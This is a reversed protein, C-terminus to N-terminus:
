LEEPPEVAPTISRTPTPLQREEVTREWDPPPSAADQRPYDRALAALYPHTSGHSGEAIHEGSQRTPGAVEHMSPLGDQVPSAYRSLLSEPPRITGRRLRPAIVQRRAENIDAVSSRRGSTWASPESPTPAPATLSYWLQSSSQGSLSADGLQEPSTNELSPAESSEPSWPFRGGMEHRRRIRDWPNPSHFRSIIPPASNSSSTTAVSSSTNEHEAPHGSNYRWTGDSSDESRVYDQDHQGQRLSSRRRNTFENFDVTRSRVPRRISTQRTLFGPPSSSSGRASGWPPFAPSVTRSRTNPFATLNHEAVDSSGTALPNTESARLTDLIDVSPTVYPAASYADYLESALRAGELPGDTGGHNSHNDGPEDEEDTFEAVLDTYIVNYGPRGALRNAHRRGHYIRLPSIQSRLSKATGESILRRDHVSTRTRRDAVEKVLIEILTTTFSDGADLEEVFTEYSISSDGDEIKSRKVAGNVLSKFKSQLV